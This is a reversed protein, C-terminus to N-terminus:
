NEGLHINHGIGRLFEALDIRGREYEMCLPLLRQQQQIYRRKARKTPLVGVSYQQLITCACAEERKLFEIAKWITPHNQGILTSYRANWSECVNNTRPNGNM